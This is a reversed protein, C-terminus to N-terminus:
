NGVGVRAPCAAGLRVSAQFLPPRSPAAGHPPAAPRGFAPGALAVACAAVFPVWASRVVSGTAFCGAATFGPVACGAASGCARPGTKQPSPRRPPTRAPVFPGPTSRLWPALRGSSACATQRGRIRARRLGARRKGRLRCAAHRAAFFNEPLGRSNEWPCASLILYSM